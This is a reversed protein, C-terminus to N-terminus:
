GTEEPSLDLLGAQLVHRLMHTTCSQVPAGGCERKRQEEPDQSSLRLEERGIGSGPLLSAGLSESAQLDKMATPM